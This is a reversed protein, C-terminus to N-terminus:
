IKLAEIEVLFRYNPDAAVTLDGFLTETGFTAKGGGMLHLTSDVELPGFQTFLTTDATHAHTADAPALDGQQVLTVNEVAHAQLADNPAFAGEGSLTTNDASHTHTADNPSISSEVEPGTASALSGNETFGGGDGLNTEWSAATNNLFVIPQGLSGVDGDTSNAFDAPVKNDSTVFIRRNSEVSFDVYQGFQMWMLAVDADLKSTGNPLAGIAHNSKTLDINGDTYTDVQDLDSSDDIYIHRKGTDSMDVSILVSHWSGTDTQASSRIELIKTGLTNEGRIVIRNGTSFQVNNDDGSSSYLREASGTANRKFWCVFTWQKSNAAGTLDAGRTLYDNTGDFTVANATAM